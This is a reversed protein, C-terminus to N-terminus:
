AAVFYVQLEDGTRYIHYTHLRDKVTWSKEPDNVIIEPNKLKINHAAFEQIVATINNSNLDYQMSLPMDFIPTTPIWCMIGPQTTNKLGPMQGYSLAYLTRWKDVDFRGAVINQPNANIKPNPSHILPQGDPSYIDLLYHSSKSGDDIYYLVYIHGEPEVAMDLYVSGEPEMLPFYSFCPKALTKSLDAFSPSLQWAQGMRQDVMLWQKGSTQVSIAPEHPLQYVLICNDGKILRYLYGRPDKITWQMHPIDVILISSVTADNMEDPTYALDIGIGSLANIVPGEPQLIGEDLTGTLSDDIAGTANNKITTLGQYFAEPVIGADLELCIDSTNLAFLSERTFAPVPNGKVDFAQVRKNLSELILIRGDPAVSMAKPGNMLGERIGVGSLALAMPAADDPLPQEPLRLILLKSEVFSCAVVANSPHVAMADINMTPFKGWSLLQDDSFGFGADGDSNRLKVQRLNLQGNRPDLVFNRQDIENVPISAAAYAIQPRQTFGIDSNILRSNPNTLLSLNQVAYLQEQTKPASLADPHLDQGSARWAYGLQCASNNLSACVLESLSNKGYEDLSHVTARSPSGVQWKYEGDIYSVEEKYCYQTDPSLPVLCEEIAHSGLELTTGNNPISEIWDSQWVGALWGNDSYVGATIQFKGGGPVDKFFLTIPENSTTSPLPGSVQQSTGDIYILTALYRSAVNPWVASDLNGAEGHKPDPKLQLLVDIARSLNIRVTAPSSAVEATTTIMREFSVATAAIRMAWGVPGFASSLAGTGVQKLVWDGLKELGKQLVISLTINAFKSLIGLSGNHKYQVGGGIIGVAAFVVAVRKVLEKDELIQRFAKTSTLLKGATTFIAPIGYQWLCTYATGKDSVAEEWDSAGLSGLLLQVEAADEIDFELSTPLTSVPVGMIDNTANVCYLERIDGYKGDEKKLRYGAYLTRLYSNSCDISINSKGTQQISDKAVSVGYHKTKENVTWRFRPTSEVRNSALVHPKPTSNQLVQVATGSAPNWTKGLLQMDDASTNQAGTSPAAVASLVNDSLGWTYLPQGVYFGPFEYGVTMHNGKADKCPVVPSWDIDAQIANKLDQMAFYQELNELAPPDIHQQLIRMATVPQTTTLNPNSFVLAAASDRATILKHSYALLEIAEHETATLNSIKWEHLKACFHAVPFDCTSADFSHIRSNYDQVAKRYYNRTHELPIYYTKLLVQGLHVDQQTKRMLKVSNVANSNLCTDSHEVYHTFRGLISHGLSLLAPHFIDSSKLTSKTHKRIPIEKDNIEVYIEEDDLEYPLEFHFFDM